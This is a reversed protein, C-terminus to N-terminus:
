REHKRWHACAVDRLNIEAIPDGDARRAHEAAVESIKDGKIQVEAMPDAQERESCYKDEEDDPFTSRFARGFGPIPGGDDNQPGSRGIDRVQGGM